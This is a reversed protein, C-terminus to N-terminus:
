DGLRSPPVDWFPRGAEREADARSVGIDRLAADDLRSLADREGFLGLALGLRALIGRFRFRPLGTRRRCTLTTSM